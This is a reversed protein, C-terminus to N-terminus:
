PLGRGREPRKRETTPSEAEAAPLLGSQTAGVASDTEAGLCTILAPLIKRAVSKYWAAFLNVSTGWTDHGRKDRGDVDKWATGLLSTPPLGEGAMVRARLAGPVRLPQMLSIAPKVSLSWQLLV